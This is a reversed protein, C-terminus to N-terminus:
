VHLKLYNINTYKLLNSNDSYFTESHFLYAEVCRLGVVGCGSVGGWNLTRSLDNGTGLPMVAVPPAPRIRLSDLTSLIWGVTGDGGCTLIRINRVRGFMELSTPWSYSATM